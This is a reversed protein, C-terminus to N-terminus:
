DVVLESQYDECLEEGCLQVVFETGRVGMLAMPTKVKYNEPNSKAVAGTIIRLGGSILNLTASDEGGSSYAYDEVVLETDPRVTVKAGDVFQLVAFSKGGTKIQESLYFNDGQALEREVTDMVATVSGRSVVVMGVSEGESNASLPMMLAFSLALVPSIKFVSRAMKSFSRSNM